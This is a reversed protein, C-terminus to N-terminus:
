SGRESPAIVQEIVLVVNPEGPQADGEARTLTGAFTASVEGQFTIHAKKFPAAVDTSSIKGVVATDKVAEDLSAGCPYLVVEDTTTDTMPVLICAKVRVKTGVLAADTRLAELTTTKPAAAATSALGLSAAILLATHLRDM